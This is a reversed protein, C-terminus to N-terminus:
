KKGTMKPYMKLLLADEGTKNTKTPEVFADESIAKGARVFAQVIEPHNGLGTDDLIQRLEPSGFKEIFKGAQALSEKAQGGLAKMTDNKWGEVQKKYTESAQTNSQNVANEVTEKVYPAYVDALKQAQEQSVGIEKLVPSVKDVLVSDIEVGEPLKFEYKEPVSTKVEKSTEEGLLSKEESGGTETTEQSDVSTETTEESVKTETTETAETAPVTM